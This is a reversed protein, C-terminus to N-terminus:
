AGGAPARCLLVELGDSGAALFFQEDREVWLKSEPALPWARDGVRASGTGRIVYLFREAQVPGFRPTDAGPELALRQVELAEVGLMAANALTTLSVGNHEIVTLDNPEFILPM